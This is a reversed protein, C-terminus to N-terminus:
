AIVELLASLTAFVHVKIEADLVNIKAVMCSMSFSILKFVFHRCPFRIQNYRLHVVQLFRSITLASHFNVKTLHVKTALFRTMVSVLDISWRHLLGAFVFIILVHLVDHRMICIIIRYSIRFRPLPVQEFPEDMALVVVSYVMLLFSSYYCKRLTM